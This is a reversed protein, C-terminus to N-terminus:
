TFVKKNFFFDEFISYVEHLLVVSDDNYSNVLCKLAVFGENRCFEHNEENYSWLYGNKWKASYISPSENGIEVMNEFQDYSIWEFFESPHTINQQKEKIFDDIAKNGSWTCLNEQVYKVSCIKCWIINGQISTYSVGCRICIENDLGRTELIENEM